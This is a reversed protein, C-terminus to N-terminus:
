LRQRACSRGMRGSRMGSLTMRLVAACNRMTLRSIFSACVARMTHAVSPKEAVVLTRM